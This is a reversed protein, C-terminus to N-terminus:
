RTARRRAKARTAENRRRSPTQGLNILAAMYGAGFGNDVNVVATGPACSNLMALLAALGDFSAGYGVSTPVAVVPADTLGGVVSPLAGEMGAVVVVARAGDLVGRKDLLRHIGAVGVDYLREVRSGMVEATVAAEEAVPIDSTGATVVVVKGEPPGRPRGVLLLRPVEYYAVPHGELGRRVEHYVRPTARTALVPGGGAALRSLIRLVQRPSKGPCYVAEPHGRRLPRHTDVKADGLDDYPLSRLAEVAQGVTISGEKLKGLLTELRRRDM